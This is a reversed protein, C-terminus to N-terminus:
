PMLRTLVNSMDASVAIVRVGPTPEVRDLTPTVIVDDMVARDVSMVVDVYEVSIDVDRGRGLDVLRAIHARDVIPDSGWYRLHM